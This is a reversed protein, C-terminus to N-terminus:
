FLFHDNPLLEITELKEQGGPKSESRTGIKCNEFHEPLTKSVVDLGIQYTPKHIDVTM